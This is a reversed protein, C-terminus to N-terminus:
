SSIPCLGRRVFNVLHLKVGPCSGRLQVFSTMLRGVKGRCFVHNMFNFAFSFASVGVSRATGQSCFTASVKGSNNGNVILVGGPGNVKVSYVVSYVGRSGPCMGATYTCALQRAFHLVRGGVNATAALPFNAMARVHVPIHTM